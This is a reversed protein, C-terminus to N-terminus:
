PCHTHRFILEGEWKKMMHISGPDSTFSFAYGSYTTGFDIAVVVFHSAVEPDSCTVTVEDVGILDQSVAAVDLAPSENQVLNGSDAPSPVENAQAPSHPSCTLVSVHDNCTVSCQSVFQDTRDGPENSNPPVSVEIVNNTHPVAPQTRSNLNSSHRTDPPSPPPSPPDTLTGCPSTAGSGHGSDSDGSRGRHHQESKESNRADVKEVPREEAKSSIRSLRDEQDVKSSFEVSTFYSRMAVSSEPVIVEEILNLPEFANSFEPSDRVTSVMTANRFNHKLVSVSKKNSNEYLNKDAQFAGPNKRESYPCISVVSNGRDVSDEFNESSNAVSMVADNAEKKFDKLSYLQPGHRLTIGARSSRPTNVFSTGTAYQSSETVGPPQPPTNKNKAERLMAQSSEGGSSCNSSFSFSDNCYMALTSDLSNLAEAEDLGPSSPNLSITVSNNSKSRSVSSPQNEISSHTSTKSNETPHRFYVGAERLKRETESFDASQVESKKSRNINIASSKTEGVSSVPLSCTSPRSSDIAARTAPSQSLNRYSTRMASDNRSLDSNQDEIM